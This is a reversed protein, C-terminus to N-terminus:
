RHLAQASQALSDEWAWNIRFHENPEKMINYTWWLNYIGFTVIAVIIRAPYNHPGKVRAPDPEPVPQGLGRRLVVM